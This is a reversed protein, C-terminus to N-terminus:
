WAAGWMQGSGGRAVDVYLHVCTWVEELLAQLAILRAHNRQTLIHAMCTKHASRDSLLSESHLCEQNNENVCCSDAVAFPLSCSLINEMCTCHQRLDTTLHVSHVKIVVPSALSHTTSHIPNNCSSLQVMSDQLVCCHLSCTLAPVYATWLNCNLAIM